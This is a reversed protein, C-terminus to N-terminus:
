FSSEIIESLSSLDHEDDKTCYYRHKKQGQFDNTVLSHEVPDLESVLNGNLVTVVAISSGCTPCVAPNETINDIRSDTVKINQITDYLAAEKLMERLYNDLAGDDLENDVVATGVISFLILRRM